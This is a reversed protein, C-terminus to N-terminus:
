STANNIKPLQAVQLWFAEVKSITEMFADADVPKTIYCNALNQYSTLIDNHYSSTTLMIVPIHRLAINGKIFQLVEQGNKKPLNIDLFILQPLQDPHHIAQEELWEIAQMGNRCIEFQHPKQEQMLAEKILLIDGENDEVLLVQIPKPNQNDLNM